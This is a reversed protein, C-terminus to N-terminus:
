DIKKGSGLPITVGFQIQIDKSMELNVVDKNKLQKKPGSHLPHQCTKLPRWNRGLNYRHKPCIWMGEQKSTPVYFMGARALILEREELKGVLKSLRCSQLHNTIDDKCDILKRSFDATDRFGGCETSSFSCKYM